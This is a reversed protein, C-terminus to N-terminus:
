LPTIILSCSLVVKPVINLGSFNRLCVLLRLRVVHQDAYFGPSYFSSHVIFIKLFVVGHVGAQSILM